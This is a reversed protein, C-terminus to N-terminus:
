KTTELTRVNFQQYDSSLDVDFVYDPLNTVFDWKDFIVIM